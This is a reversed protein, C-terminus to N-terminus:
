SAEQFQSMAIDSNSGYQYLDGRLPSSDSEYNNYQVEVSALM